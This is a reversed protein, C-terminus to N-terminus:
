AFHPRTPGQRHYTLTCYLRARVQLPLMLLKEASVNFILSSEFSLMANVSPLVAIFTRLLDEPDSAMNKRFARDGWSTARRVFDLWDDVTTRRGEARIDEWQPADGPTRSGRAIYPLYRQLHTIIRM